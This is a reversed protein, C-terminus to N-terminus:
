KIQEFNVTKIQIWKQDKTQKFTNKMTMALSIYKENANVRDKWGSFLKRKLNILYHWRANDNM